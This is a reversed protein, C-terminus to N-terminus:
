AEVRVGARDVQLRYLPQAALKRRTHGLGVACDGLGSGSIKAGQIGPAARLQQCLQELEPTNVGLAAQLGHHFNLLAGCGAWDKKGILPVARAVCDDMLDFLKAFLLPNRHRQRDVIAIVAPTPTKYGSYVATLPPAVPLVRVQQPAARYLVIGGHLSAAADAGSGCGQVGRIIARAEALFKAPTCLGLAFMEDLARLLAVTVAASSGFGIQHSFEAKITIDLGQGLRPRQRLLTALVFTFPPQVKLADLTTRYEGLVSRIRLQRDTRARLRVHMRQDLAACLARRGHLVAHEGMLMLSGPASVNIERSPM